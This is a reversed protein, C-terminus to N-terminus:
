TGAPIEDANEQVRVRQWDVFKSKSVDLRWKGKGTGTNKCDAQKCATPETFKFQQEVPFSESNCEGCQFYGTMLEPRVESTRTVTGSFSVLRGVHKMTLDRIKKTELTNFFAVFLEKMEGENFLFDPHYEKVVEQVARRLYPEYRYYEDAVAEALVSDHRQMHEYDVFLTTADFEKMM